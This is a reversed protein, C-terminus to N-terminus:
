AVGTQYNKDHVAEDLNMECRNEEGFVSDEKIQNDGMEALADLGIKGSKDWFEEILNNDGKTKRISKYNKLVTM